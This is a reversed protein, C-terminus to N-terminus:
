PQETIPRDETPQEFSLFNNHAAVGFRMRFIECAMAPIYLQGRQGRYVPLPLALDGASTQAINSGETFVGWAGYIELRIQGKTKTVAGGISQILVGMPVCWVSDKQECPTDAQALGLDWGKYMMRTRNFMPPLAHPLVCDTTKNIVCKDMVRGDSLVSTLTLTMGDVEVIVAAAINEEMTYQAAHWVKALSRTGPPNYNGNGINYHITGKSPQAFLSENRLPFSRAFSHEHGAFILDFSEFGERMAPYADYNELNVGSYCIPFHYVGIKWAADTAKCSDIMWQNVIEPENIGVVGIMVDGYRFTYNETTWGDPGNQPYAGCFQTGFYAAPEAYYRGVGKAYDAFGRNDHNGLTMMFPMSEAIGALGAFLGNWQVEHQGCDTNDGATLLFACDPHAQLLSQLFDHLTGYDPCDHPSGKQIDSICIFKFKKPDAEGTAFLFPGARHTQNGCTYRYRTNPKLDPMHASHMVSQDIDSEFLRNEAELRVHGSDPIDEWFDLFGTPADLSTRWTVARQSAAKELLSLMIHDPNPTSGRVPKPM